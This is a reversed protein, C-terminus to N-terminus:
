WCKRQNKLHQGQSRDLRLDVGFTSDRKVTLNKDIELKFNRKFKEPSLSKEIEKFQISITRRIISRLGM